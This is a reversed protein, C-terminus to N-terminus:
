SETLMESVLVYQSQHSVPVWVFLTGTHNSPSGHDNIKYTMHNTSIVEIALAKDTAKM